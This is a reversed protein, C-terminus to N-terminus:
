SNYRIGVKIKEPSIKDLRYETGYWEEKKDTQGEFKKAVVSVRFFVNRTSIM